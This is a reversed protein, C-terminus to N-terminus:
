ASTVVLTREEEGIDLPPGFFPLDEASPPRSRAGAYGLAAIWSSIEGPGRHGDTRIGEAGPLTESALAAILRAAIISRARPEDKRANAVLATRARRYLERM